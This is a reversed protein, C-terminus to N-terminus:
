RNPPARFSVVSTPTAATLVRILRVESSVSSPETFAYEGGIAYRNADKFNRDIILEPYGEIQLDTSEFDDFFVREFDWFFTFANSLQHSGSVVVREPM